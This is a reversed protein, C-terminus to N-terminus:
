WERYLIQKLVKKGKGREKSYTKLFELLGKMEERTGITIRLYQGSEARSNLIECLNDGTKLSEFLETADFEPHRVFLVNARPIRFNLDLSQFSRKQGNEQRLSGTECDNSFVNGGKVSQAGCVLATQNITYSNFSYKADHLYGILEPNGIAYGIRMGAMSRSKSFTQVVM